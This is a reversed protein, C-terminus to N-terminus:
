TTLVWAACGQAGRMVASGTPLILTREGSFDWPRRVASRERDVESDDRSVGM